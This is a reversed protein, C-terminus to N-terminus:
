IGIATWYFFDNASFNSVYKFSSTTPPTGSDILVSVANGASARYVTTQITYAGTTWTVPFQVTGSNLSGAKGYFGYQMLLGGPLFTWGGTQTFGAPPAGYASNVGFSSFSATIARTLQYENSSNDPSFFIQSAASSSKSYINADGVVLGGTPVPLGAAPMQLVLHKGANAVNMDYHNQDIATQLVTFNTKVSNRTQGLSQGSNPLLTFTM